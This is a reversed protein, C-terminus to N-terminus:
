EMLLKLLESVVLVNISNGLLRYRQRNTTTEPFNFSSPFSMLQAVEFPTFYRLRLGKLLSICKDSDGEINKCEDFVAMVDSSGLPCFVSGTGETYHTYAKTFCTTNKSDPHKIDLLWARKALLDDPLLFEDSVNDEVITRVDFISTGQQNPFEHLQLTIVNNFQLFETGFM